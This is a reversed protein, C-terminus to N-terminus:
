TRLIRALADAAPDTSGAMGASEDLVAQLQCLAARESNTLTIAPVGDLVPAPTPDTGPLLTLAALVFTAAASAGAGRLLLPWDVDSLVVATALGATIFQGFQRTARQLAVSWWTGSGDAMGRLSTAVTVVLLVAITSLAPQWATAPDDFLAPLFPVLGALATRTLAQAISVWFTRTFLQLM